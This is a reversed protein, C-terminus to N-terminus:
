QKFIIFFLAFKLKFIISAKQYATVFPYKEFSDVFSFREDIINFSLSEKICGIFICVM